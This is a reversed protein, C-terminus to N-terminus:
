IMSALRPRRLEREGSPSMPSVVRPCARCALLACAASLASQIMSHFCRVPGAKVTRAGLM